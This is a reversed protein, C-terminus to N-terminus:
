PNHRALWAAIERLVDVRQEWKTPFHPSGTYTVMRVTKGRAAMVLYLERGQYTPVRDDAAGHLILLPTTEDRTHLAASFKLFAEPDEDPWRADYDFQQIDSTWLFSLWDTIGAGEIAARYRHTQTVTWSTMFGGASWGFMALRNPDAWGEAVAYDTASDVDRYARDGFHQYIAELFDSGYGTSGRYEPQLVVYGLGALSETVADLAFFDNAEPGGHPLVLFRYKKGESYGPPFTAIGELRIGEKSTWHVIRMSGLAIRSLEDDGETTIRRLRGGEDVAVNSSHEPDSVDFALKEPASTIEPSVPVDYITGEPWAYVPKLEGDAFRDVEGRVGRAVFVWVNGHVDGGIALASGDLNPTRDVPTGGTSPLTWVHDPTLVHTTTSLFVLEKGQDTWVISGEGRRTPSAAANPIEALRKAGSATCVDIFSRMTHFGIMPTESLVALSAGDPSWAIGDVDKLNPCWWAGNRGDADLVYVSTQGNEVVTHVDALPDLLRPDALVAFRSGDPSIVAGGIGSPISTLVDPVAEPVSFAITSLQGHSNKVFVGYLHWGDRTFGFPTFENPLKLTRPNSGDAAMLKWEHQTPGKPAGFDVRCLITAGDPSIAVAQAARARVWDDPGFPHKDASRSVPGLVVSAIICAIYRKM